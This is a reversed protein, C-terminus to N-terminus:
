LIRLEGIFITATILVGDLVEAEMGEVDRDEIVGAVTHYLGSLPHYQPADLPRISM